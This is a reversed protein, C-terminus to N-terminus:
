SQNSCFGTTCCPPLHWHMKNFSINFLHFSSSVFLYSFDSSLPNPWPLYCMAQSLGLTETSPFYTPSHKQWFFFFFIKQNCCKQLEANMCMTQHAQSVSGNLAQKRSSSFLYAPHWIHLYAITEKGEKQILLDIIGM